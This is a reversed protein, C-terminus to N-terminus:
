IENATFMDSDCTTGGIIADRANWDHESWRDRWEQSAIEIAEEESVASVAVPVAVEVMVTVEWDRVRRPLGEAYLKPNTSEIFDDFESCWGRSEAEELLAEGITAVDEAWRQRVLAIEATLAEIRGGSSQWAMLASMRALEERTAMNLNAVTWVEAAGIGVESSRDEDELHRGYDVTVRDREVDIAVIRGLEHDTRRRVFAGVTTTTLDLM